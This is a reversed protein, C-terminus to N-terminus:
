QSAKRLFAELSRRSREDMAVFMAGHGKLPVGPPLGVSRRVQVDSRFADAGLGSRLEATAGIPLALEAALLAGSLSIDLVRVRTRLNLRCELGGDLAVRPTLRRETTFGNGM